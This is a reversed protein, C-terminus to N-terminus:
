FARGYQVPPKMEHRLQKAAHLPWYPDRLFQRALFVMDAQGMRIIQDAQEPSTIMGVAATHISAEARVRAAFPVQYGAGLPIKVDPIMGGSSCDILDVGEVKLEGALEVSHEITWGYETWDSASIRVFLPYREPWVHRVAHCVECLMRIQNEFTDGYADIRHNGLPSLFENLLYGHAAHIEVIKAGAEMARRAAASFADVIREIGAKDLMEPKQYGEGFPIASPAYIPSWGGDAPALPANGKWPSSTSAKRGAHALQVGPVAGQKEIFRFVRALPEIHEDSWIGLDDPSIRGEPLVAAAETFVLAAGGVARSGLHVLHWDTAVGDVCSYQCMPSVGIRNRFTIDRIELESFLHAPTEAPQNM